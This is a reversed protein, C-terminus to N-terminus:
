SPQGDLPLRAAGDIEITCGNLYPNEVVHRVLAAFEDPAGFRPPNVMESRIHERVSKPLAETMPTSFSGPAVCVCRIGVSALDRAAVRTLASIGAKSAAYAATGVQGDRAAISGVTVMVGRQGDADPYGRRMADGVVSLTLFTGTLNVDLVSQFAAARQVSRKDLLRGVGVIGACAVVIRPPGLTTVVEDIASALSDEDTVDSVIPTAEPPVDDVSVDLVVVRAGDALLRRVTAAGLGSAGGTVVAVRGALESAPSM